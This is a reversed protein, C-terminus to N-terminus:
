LRHNLLDMMHQQEERIIKQISAKDPFFEKLDSYFIISDKEVEIAMKIAESLDKPKNESNLKPFISVDAFAMLYGANEADVWYKEKDANIYDEFLAKFVTQHEREQGALREFLEKM